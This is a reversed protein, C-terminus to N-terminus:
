RRLEPYYVPAAAGYPGAGLATAIAESFDKSSFYAVGHAGFSRCLREQSLVLEPSRSSPGQTASPQYVSIGPIIREMRPDFAKYEKLTNELATNEMLYAMTVVYDVLGAQLWGYWDQCVAAAAERNQFVAASLKAQPKAQLAAARVSRVLETVTWTRYEVWRSLRLREQELDLAPGAPLFEQGPAPSVLRLGRFFKGTGSLGVVDQLAAEKIAYFPGDIFLCHGGASVYQRLWLATPAAIYYQGALIITGGPAVEALKTEDLPTPRYGLSTLWERPPEQSKAGYKATTETTCLQFLTGAAAGFRALTRTVFDNVGPVGGRQAAWNLLVAEGQGLRNRTIAPHGDDFTALVQATTLGALPNGSVSLAAPLLRSPARVAFGSRAAFEGQCHGCTCYGQGDYRIYDLHLGDVEYRRLCDIMVDTEFRRVAPQALDYWMAPGQETQVAWEPHEKFLVAGKTSGYQGVVFWAHVDIGRAHALQILYGLPDYDPSVNAAKPSLASQFWAQGGNYWVLAYIANLRAAAARAVAQEAEAPTDYSFNAVWLARHEPAEAGAAAVVRLVLVACGLWARFGYRRCM